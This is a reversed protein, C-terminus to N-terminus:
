DPTSKRMRTDMEIAELYSTGVAGGGIGVGNVYHLFVWMGSEKSRGVVESYGGHNEWKFGIWNREDM